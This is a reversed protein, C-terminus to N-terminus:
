RIPGRLAHLACTAVGWVNFSTGAPLAFPPLLRNENVLRPRGREILLRKLTQEAEVLAVVVDRHRPTLSRDVVLLDGDFIGADVMCDGVVRFLFTAPRNAVLLQTLDITEEAYDDAPSPFGACLRHLILPIYVADGKRVRWVAM